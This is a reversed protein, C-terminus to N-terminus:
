VHGKRKDRKFIIFISIINLIENMFILVRIIDDSWIYLQIFVQRM